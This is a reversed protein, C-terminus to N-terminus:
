FEALLASCPGLRVGSDTIEFEGLALLVRRPRGAHAFDRPAGSLNFACLVRQGDCERLFGWSTAGPPSDALAIAGERLAPSAKRVAILARTFALISSPDQEQADVALAAHRPDLPLWADAASTFGAM